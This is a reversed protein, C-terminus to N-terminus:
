MYMSLLQSIVKKKEMYFTHCKLDMLRIFIVSSLNMWLHSIEKDDGFWTLRESTKNNVDVKWIDGPFVASKLGLVLETNSYWDLSKYVGRPLSSIQQHTQSTVDYLGLTSIGGEN